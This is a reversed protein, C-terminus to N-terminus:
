LPGSAKQILQANQLSEQSMLHAVKQQCCPEIETLQIQRQRGELDNRLGHTHPSNAQPFSTTYKHHTNKRKEETPHFLMPLTIARHEGVAMPMQIPASFASPTRTARRLASPTTESMFFLVQSGGWVAKGQIKLAQGRQLCLPRPGLLIQLLKFHGM